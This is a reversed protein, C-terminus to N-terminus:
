AVMGRMSIPTHVRRKQSQPEEKSVDGREMHGKEIDDKDLGAFYDIGGRENKRRM